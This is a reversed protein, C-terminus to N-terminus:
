LKTHLSHLHNAGFVKLGRKMPAITAVTILCFLNISFGKLGRKMPAITAVRQNRVAWRLRRRVKLGRKMPAITAVGDTPWLRTHWSSETGKEDPCHNSCTLIGVVGQQVLRETGKEDPCHNSSYYSEPTLDM